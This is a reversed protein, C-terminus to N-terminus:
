ARCAQLLAQPIASLAMVQDAAGLKVAERPMGYVVCSEENQAITRAGARKMRLLGQAGDCGMGTLLAGVAHDKASEAVSAFLVDVSPRQYCVQPGDQVQVRFGGGARRLLMHFNGPAVLALGPRAEDGDRAERVEMACSRDLRGAFAASFAQPIHQTIVIPPTDAPMEMLVERIAETGGTSAGIAIVADQRFSGARAPPRPHPAVAKPAVNRICASAAARLKAALATRLEGISYPGGPKALVEIAGHRLAEVSAECSSHGLSSIVIVPMPHYLMLKKLFTLGDMRPMEIDLTLVDPNLALIKDRAVYPDPATGVVEMDPEAAITETLIKRVIASDDVVLVKIRSEAGIM